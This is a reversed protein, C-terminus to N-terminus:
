SALLRLIGERTGGADCVRRFEDRDLLRDVDLESSILQALVRRYDRGADVFFDDRVGVDTSVLAAVHHGDFPFGAALRAALSSATLILITYDEHSATADLRDKVRGPTYAAVGLARLTPMAFETCHSFPAHGLDHCLAAVRVLQRYVARREPSSFPDRRIGSYGYATQTACLSGNTEECLLSGTENFVARQGYVDYRYHEVAAGTRDVLAIVNGQLDPVPFRVEQTAGNQVVALPRHLTPGLLVAEAEKGNDYRALLEVGDYVLAERRAGGNSIRGVRRDFVDYLVKVVEGSPKEVSEQQDFGNYTYKQAGDSAVPMWSVALLRTSCLLLGLGFLRALGRNVM